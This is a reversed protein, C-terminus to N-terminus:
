SPLSACDCIALISIRQVSRVRAFGASRSSSLGFCCVTSFRASLGQLIQLDPVGMDEFSKKLVRGVKCEAHMCSIGAMYAIGIPKTTRCRESEDAKQLKDEWSQM